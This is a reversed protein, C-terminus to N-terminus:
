FFTIQILKTLPMIARKASCEDGCSGAIGEKRWNMDVMTKFGWNSRDQKKLRKKKEQRLYIIIVSWLM